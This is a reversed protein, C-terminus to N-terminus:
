VRMAGMAGLGLSVSKGFLVITRIITMDDDADKPQKVCISEFYAAVDM